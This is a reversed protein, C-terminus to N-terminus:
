RSPRIAPEGWASWDFNFSGDSDTILAVVVPQNAWAALDVELKEWTGPLMKRRAIERGNVEIAFLVGESKSGDRLGIWSQVMAPHEPLTLPWLAIARGHDPPHVLLGDRAVGAVTASCPVVAAYKPSSVVQGAHQVFLVRAPQRALDVPLETPPPPDKLFFVAGPVPVRVERSTGDTHIPVVGSGSVAMSWRGGGSVTLVDEAVAYQEIRPQYWRAWDYSPSNKPGPGVSLELTITEGAFPTLDLSLPLRKGTANHLEAHGDHSPSSAHARFTVGDSRDPGEAASDLAVDTVFQLSAGHPLEIAYRAFAEGSKGTKWPPHATLVDGQSTFSAGDAADLPGLAESVEGPAKRSGCRAGDIAATLDAVVAEADLTRVVAWDSQEAVYGLTVRDPLHIVHLADQPRPDPFCPYWHQPNLAFLRREDYARWGPITGSGLVERVGTVTRSIEQDGCRLRRDATAAVARGDASRYPFVVDNSWPGELDIRLRQQQWFAVEEFFQRTFGEPESLSDRLPKLTPIVGWHRYAENWAAYLQGSEPPACGLYGYIATFPRLVYSSIPHAAALWRPNWSEKTHDLGWVHRQAFAEHRCTVENLGEGSLAIHPLASRLEQHLALNGELMSMGDMRGNHDNYICLTQDLHLADAGTRGCLRAMAGVFLARWPKYAPNIYAFRIEPDAYPWLWWQREHNGWPDRVQHAEFEKYRANLPDVGFYNVHLMIRFGLAHARRVFPELEPVPQDYEPYDRDYGASRWDPLYLLTQQPDLRTPLAELLQLDLGMIACGRIDQVWSPQQQELPVPRMHTEFWERYRRAPVRWDGAYVSLRWPVSECRTLDDFPADNLTYFGLRWGSTRREVVLRKFRGHPDEARVSFGGGKGEVIVFQSEWTMPYDFEHRTGPAKNTLRLGSCGPVLIAHELPIDAIWWSVGWVGAAPSHVRQQLVLDGTARDSRWTTQIEAGPLDGFDRLCQELRDGALEAGEAPPSPKLWHDVAIRHIGASRPEAPTQVWVTGAQDSLKAVSGDRVRAQWGNAQIARTETGSATAALIGLLFHAVM